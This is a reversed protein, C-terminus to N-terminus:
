SCLWYGPWLWVRSPLQFCEAAVLARDTSEHSWWPSNFQLSKVLRARLRGNLCNLAAM